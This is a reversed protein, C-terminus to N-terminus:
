PALKQLELALEGIRLVFDLQRAAVVVADARSEQFVATSDKGRVDEGVDEVELLHLIELDVVRSVAGDRRHLELRLFPRRIPRRGCSLSADGHGM